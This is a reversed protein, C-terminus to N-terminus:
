LSENKNEKDIKHREDDLRKNSQAEHGCGEGIAIGAEMATLPRAAKLIDTLLSGQIIMENQKLLQVFYLSQCNVGKNYLGGSKGRYICKECQLYCVTLWFGNELKKAEAIDEDTPEHPKFNKIDSDSIIM